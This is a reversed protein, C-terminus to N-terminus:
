SANGSGGRRSFDVGYIVNSEPEPKPDPVPAPYLIEYAEDLTLGTDRVINCAAQLDGLIGLTM